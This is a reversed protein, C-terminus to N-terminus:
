SPFWNLENRDFTSQLQSIQRLHAALHEGNLPTLLYDEVGLHRELWPIGNGAQSSLAIIPVQQLQPHERFQKAWTKAREESVKGAILVMDVPDSLSQSTLAEPSSVFTVAFRNLSFLQELSRSDTPPTGIAVVRILDSEDEFNQGQSKYCGKKLDGDCLTCSPVDYASGSPIPIPLSCRACEGVTCSGSLFQGFCHTDGQLYLSPFDRRQQFRRWFNQFDLHYGQYQYILGEFSIPSSLPSIIAKGRSLFYAVYSMLLDISTVTEGINKKVPVQQRDPVQLLQKPSSHLSSPFESQLIVRDGGEAKARDLAQYAATILMAPAIESCPSVSAVGLSITMRPVQTNARAIKLAKVQSHIEEAIQVAGAGETRPLLVIFEKGGYRAVLDSSRKVARRIGHAIQQLCKDGVQHGYIDNFEKFWDLNCIILSLPEQEKTMQLWEQQLYEDFHRRNALQTLDDLSALRQLKQNVTHLHQYLQDQQIAIAVQSALLSFLAIESQQWQRPKSCQHAILLGWLRNPIERQEGETKDVEEQLSSELEPSYLLIPVVLKAKVDFFTELTTMSCQELGAQHIDEIVRIKGQQFQKIEKFSFFHGMRSKLMTKSGFALSEELVQIKGNPAFQCIMVRDAQLFQRVGLLITYLVKKINLSQPISQAILARPMTKRGTGVQQEQEVPQQLEKELDQRHTLNTIDSM